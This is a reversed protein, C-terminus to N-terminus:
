LLRKSVLAEEVGTGDLPRANALLLLGPVFALVLALGSFLRVSGM